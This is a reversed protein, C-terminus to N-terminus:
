FVILDLLKISNNYLKKLLNYLQDRGKIRYKLKAEISKIIDIQDIVKKPRTSKTWIAIRQISFGSTHQPRFYTM